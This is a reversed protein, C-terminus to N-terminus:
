RTRPWLQGKRPRKRERGFFTAFTQASVGLVTIDMGVDCKLSPTAEVRAPLALWSLSAGTVVSCLNELASGRAIARPNVALDSPSATLTTAPVLAKVPSAM